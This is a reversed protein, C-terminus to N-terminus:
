QDPVVVKVLDVLFRKKTKFKYLSSNSIQLKLPSM